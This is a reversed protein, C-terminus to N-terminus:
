SIRNLIYKRLELHFPFFFFISYYILISDFLPLYLRFLFLFFFLSILGIPTHRIARRARWASLWKFQVYFNRRFHISSFHFSKFLFLIQFSVFWRCVHTNPTRRIIILQKHPKHDGPQQGRASASVLHPHLMLAIFPQGLGDSGRHQPWNERSKNCAHSKRRSSSPVAVDIRFLYSSRTNEESPVAAADSRHVLSRRRLNAKLFHNPRRAFEFTRPRKTRACRSYVRAFPCIHGHTYSCVCCWNMTRLFSRVFTSVLTPRNM